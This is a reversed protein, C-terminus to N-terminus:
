GRLFALMADAMTSPAAYQPYHGGPAIEIRRVNPLGAELAAECSRPVLGDRDGGILLVEHGIRPLSPRLDLKRLISARHSATRVPTRGSCDLLFEFIEQPCEPLQPLTQEAMVEKRKPMGAMTGPLFRAIMAMGTELATFDRHAFGGQLVVKRFRQPFLTLAKLTVTSGFSCGCPDVADLKLHDLLAVLDAAFDDHGYRSLRAGDHLGDALEYAICRRGGQVLRQMLMAFSQKQDAMGHILVVPPEASEGWVAYDLRHRPTQVSAFTAESRYATLAAALDTATPPQPPRQENM